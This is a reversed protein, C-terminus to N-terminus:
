AWHPFVDMISARTPSSNGNATLDKNMRDIIQRTIEQILNLFM